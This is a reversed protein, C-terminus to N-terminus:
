AALRRRARRAVPRRERTAGRRIVWGNSGMVGALEGTRLWNRVSQESPRRGAPFQQAWQRPTLYETDKSLQEVISLLDDACYAMTDAVPDVASVARRKKVDRRWAEATNKVQALVADLM